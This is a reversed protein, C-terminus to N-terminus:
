FVATVAWFFGHTYGVQKWKAELFIGHNEHTKKKKKCATKKWESSKGVSVAMSFPSYFVDATHQM